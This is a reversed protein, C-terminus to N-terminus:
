TTSREHKKTPKTTIMEPNLIMAAARSDSTSTFAHDAQPRSIRVPAGVTEDRRPWIRCPPGDVVIVLSPDPSM